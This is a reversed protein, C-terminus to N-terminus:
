HGKVLREILPQGILILRRKFETLRTRRWRAIAGDLSLGYTLAGDTRGSKPKWSPFSYPLDPLWGSLLYSIIDPMLNNYFRPRCLPCPPTCPFRNFRVSRSRGPAALARRNVRVRSFRSRAGRTKLRNHGCHTGFSQWHHIRDLRGSIPIISRERFRSIM